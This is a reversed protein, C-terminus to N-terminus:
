YVFINSGVSLGAGSAVLLVTDGRKIRGSKVAEYFAMPVCASGTYGFKDMITTTKELPQGLIEMVEEIVSRNIQTFIFHDIDKLTRGAKEALREVLPPWLKVNRDGPLRQLLQLGYDGEDLLKHTIPKRSGGAYVGVYDWQTGDTVFESDIYGAETETRELVAAAAGDAFISYGFADGERVFAPMNYMGVVVGYRLSPNGAMMRDVADYATVFGACSTNIDFSATYRRGGQIRGQILVATSPSIYEPTDSGVVFIGVEEPSIGADEIAERAAREAFDASTEDIGRLHAIHRRKIGIKEELREKNLEIGTLEVLEDNDIPDGPAYRGIGAIRTTTM